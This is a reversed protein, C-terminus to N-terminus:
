RCVPWPARMVLNMRFRIPRPSMVNHSSLMRTKKM